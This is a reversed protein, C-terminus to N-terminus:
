ATPAAGACRRTAAGGSSARRAGSLAAGAQAVLAGAAALVFAGTVGLPGLLLAVLWCFLAFGAMGSLMGRLVQRTPEAGATRHASVALVSALVPLSTLVGAAVPGVLPAVAALGIVLALTLVMLAALRAPPRVARAVAPGSGRRGLLRYAMAFALLAAAFALTAPVHARSLPAAVVATIAWAAPLARRWSGRRAVRGYVVCFAALAVLGLLTGAAARAAFARGHAHAEILLVPGVIAPFASLLGGIREGFRRTALAAAGVLLPAM